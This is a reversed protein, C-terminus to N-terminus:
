KIQTQKRMTTGLVYQTINKNQKDENQTDLTEWKKKPIRWRKNLILKLIGKLYLSVHCRMLVHFIFTM